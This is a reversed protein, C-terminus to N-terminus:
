LLEKVQIEDVMRELWSLDTLQNGKIQVKVAAAAVGYRAAMILDKGQHLQFTLASVFSDGAGVHSVIPVKPAEFYHAAGSHEVLLAGGKTLTVILNKVAGRVVLDKMDTRLTPIDSHEDYGLSAFEKRNLKAVFAGCFLSNSLAAGSTDLIVRTNQAQEARLISRYFDDPVQKPISGSLVLYEAKLALLQSVCAQLEPPTLSPGPFVFHHMIQRKLETVAFNQRTEKAIPVAIFSLARESLLEKLREGTLGGAPFVAVVPAGLRHINQAVNIGGGGPESIAEECRTKSDDFIEQTVAFVDIAPNLTFTAILSM